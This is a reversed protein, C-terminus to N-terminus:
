DTLDEMWEGIMQAAWQPVAVSRTRGGKGRMNRLVMTGGSGDGGVWAVQECDLGCAEERRLGCGLLLALVARDRRGSITGDPTRELMLRAQAATLRLGTKTGRVPAGRISCVGAARAGDLM